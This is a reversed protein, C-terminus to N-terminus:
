KITVKTRIYGSTIQKKHYANIYFDYPKFKENMKSKM